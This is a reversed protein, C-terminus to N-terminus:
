QSDLPSVWMDAKKALQWAEDWSTLTHDFTDDCHWPETRLWELLGFWAQHQWEPCVMACPGKRPWIPGRGLWTRWRTACSLLLEFSNANPVGISCEYECCFEARTKPTQLGLNECEPMTDCEGGELLEWCQELENMEQCEELLDYPANTGAVLAGKQRRVYMDFGDIPFQISTTVPFRESDVRSAVLQRGLTKMAEHIYSTDVGEHLSFETGHGRCIVRATCALRLANLPLPSRASRPASCLMAQQRAKQGNVFWCKEDCLCHRLDWWESGLPSKMLFYAFTEAHDQFKWRDRDFEQQFGGVGFWALVEAFSTFSAGLLTSPQRLTLVLNDHVGVYLLSLVVAQGSAKLPHMLRLDIPLELALRATM